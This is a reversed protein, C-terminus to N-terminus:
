RNNSMNGSGLTNESMDSYANPTEEIGIDINNREFEERQRKDIEM